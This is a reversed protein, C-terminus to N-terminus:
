VTLTLFLQTQEDHLSLADVDGLDAIM